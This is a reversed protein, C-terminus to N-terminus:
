WRSYLWRLFSASGMRRDLRLYGFASTLGQLFYVDCAKLIGKLTGSPGFGFIGFIPRLFWAEPVVLAAVSFLLVEAITPHLEVLDGAILILICLVASIDNEGTVVLVDRIHPEIAEFHLKAEKESIGVEAVARVVGGEIKALIRSIVQTRQAHHEANDPPPFEERIENSVRIMETALSEYLDNVSKGHKGQVSAKLVRTREILHSMSLKMDAIGVATSAYTATADHLITETYKQVSVGM